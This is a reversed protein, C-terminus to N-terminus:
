RILRGYDGGLTQTDKGAGPFRIGLAQEGVASRIDEATAALHARMTRRPHPSPGAEVWHLIEEHERLARRASGPQSTGVERSVRLLEVVPDLMTLLVDNGLSRALLVHFEVDADVYGEPADIAERMRDLQVRM